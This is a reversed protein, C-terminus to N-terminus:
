TREQDEIFSPKEGEKSMEAPEFSTYGSIASLRKQKLFSAVNPMTLMDSAVTRELKERIDAIQRYHVKGFSIMAAQEEPLYYLIRNLDRLLAFAKDSLWLGHGMAFALQQNADKMRENDNFPLHFPNQDAVISIKYVNIVNEVQEYAAVRRQIVLKYYDNFYENRKSRLNFAGTIVVGLLAGLAASGAIIAQLQM